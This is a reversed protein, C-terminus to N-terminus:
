RRRLWLVAVVFALVAGLGGALVAPTSRQRVVAGVSRITEKATETVHQAKEQARARVDVKHTLAAVTDGLEARTREIQRQLDEDSPASGPATAPETDRTM